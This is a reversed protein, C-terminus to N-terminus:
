TGSSKNAVLALWVVESATVPVVVVGLWVVRVGGQWCINPGLYTTEEFVLKHM